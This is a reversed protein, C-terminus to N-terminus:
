VFAPLVVSKLRSVRSEAYAASRRKAVSSARAARAAEGFSPSTM